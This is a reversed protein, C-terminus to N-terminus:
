HNGFLKRRLSDVEDAYFVYGMGVRGAPAILGEDMYRQLTRVSVELVGAAQATTLLRVEGPLGRERRERRAM